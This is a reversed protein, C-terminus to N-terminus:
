WWTVFLAIDKLHEFLAQLHCECGEVVKQDHYRTNFRSPLKLRTVIGFTDKKKQKFSIDGWDQLPPILPFSSLDNSVERLALLLWARADSGKCVLCVSSAVAARYLIGGEFDEM